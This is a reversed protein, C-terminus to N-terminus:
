DGDNMRVARDVISPDAGFHARWVADTIVAVDQGPRAEDATFLRGRAPPIGMLALMQTECTGMPVIEAPRGEVPLIVSGITNFIAMDDFVHNRARWDVYNPYAVNWPGGRRTESIRMLRDPDGYPLPKLLVGYVATFIATNAGTGLALTLVAAATFGPAAALARLVYRLDNLM